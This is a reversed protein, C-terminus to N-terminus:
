QLINMQVIRSEAQAVIHQYHTIELENREQAHLKEKDPAGQGGMMGGTGMQMQAQMMADPNDVAGNDAGLVLSFVGRLGFLNIFFWSLSSVYSVNLSNLFIGRQLMSKFRDTLPFPLKVLVFGSFFFSVWGMMLMNPLVTMMNQKLMGVMALPDQAEMQESAAKEAEPTGPKPKPIEAFSSHILFRKRSSFASPSLFCAHARFRASRRLLQASQISSLPVKKDEKLLVTVYQRLLGSLFFFFFFSFSISLLFIDFISLFLM